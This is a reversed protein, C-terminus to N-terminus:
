CDVFGYWRLVRRERGVTGAQVCRKTHGHGTVRIGVVLRPRADTAEDRSKELAVDHRRPWDVSPGDVSAMEARSGSRREQLLFREGMGPRADNTCRLQVANLFPHPLFFSHTFGNTFLSFFDEDVVKKERIKTSLFFLFLFADTRQLVFVVLFLIRTRCFRRKHASAGISGRERGILIPRSGDDDRSSSCPERKVSEGERKLARLVLVMVVVVLFLVIGSRKEDVDDNSM